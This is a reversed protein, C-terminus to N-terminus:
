PRKEHEEKEEIGEEVELVEGAGVGEQGAAM